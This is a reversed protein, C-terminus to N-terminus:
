SKVLWCLCAMTARVGAANICHLVLLQLIEFQALAHVGHPVHKHAQSLNVKPNVCKDLPSPHLVGRKTKQKRKWFKWRCGGDQPTGHNELSVYVYFEANSKASLNLLYLHVNLDSQPLRTCSFGAANWCFKAISPFSGTWHPQISNSTGKLLSNFMRLETCEKTEM